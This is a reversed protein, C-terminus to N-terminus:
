LYSIAPIVIIKCSLCSLFLFLSLPFLGDAGGMKLNPHRSGFLRGSVSICTLKKNRCPPTSQWPPPLLNRHSMIVFLICVGEERKRTYTHIGYMYMCPLLNFLFHLNWTPPCTHVIRVHLMYTRVHIYSCTHVVHIYSCTHVSMYTRDRRDPREKRILLTFNQVENSFPLYVVVPGKNNLSTRMLGKRSNRFKGKIHWKEGKYTCM